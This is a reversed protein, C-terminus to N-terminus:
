SGTRPFLMENLADAADQQMTPLVHSYTDLTLVISAHGLMESVIKPSKNAALLLTACSHRLDYPRMNSLGAAALIPKFYRRNLNCRELPTGFESAFVLEHTEYRDGMRLRHELQEKRHHRLIPLLDKPLMVTRRSKETKCEEFRWGGGRPRFLTRRIRIAGTTLNLDPWQIALYEEPRMGTALAVIYVVGHPHSLASEIFRQAQETSLAPMERKAQRPLEAGQAPNFSLMHWRVAQKLASSLVVHANRVTKPSLGSETLGNYFTQM